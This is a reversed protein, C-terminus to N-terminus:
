KENIFTHEIKGLFQQAIISEESIRISSHRLLSTEEGGFSNIKSSSLEFENEKNEEPKKEM